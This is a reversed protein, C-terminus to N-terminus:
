MEYKLYEVLMVTAVDGSRVEPSNKLAEPFVQGLFFTLKRYIGLSKEDINYVFAM